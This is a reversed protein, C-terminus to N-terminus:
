MHRLIFRIVLDHIRTYVAARNGDSGIQASCFVAGAHLHRRICVPFIGQRNKKVAHKGLCRTISIGPAYKVAHARSFKIM